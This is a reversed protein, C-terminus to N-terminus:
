LAKIRTAEADAIRTREVSAAAVLQKTLTNNEADLQAITTNLTVVTANLPDTAAKVAPACDTVPATPGKTVNSKATFEWKGGAWRCLWQNSGGDPDVDGTVWGTVAWVDPPLGVVRIVTAGLKADTRVNATPKITATYGPIYTSLTPMAADLVPAPQKALPRAIGTWGGTMFTALQAKTVWQGQYTGKPALPDDWWVRDQTDVRSVDIAHGGTFSPSFRRLTHGSPFNGMVGTAIGATGPKLATWFAAFGLPSVAIGIGLRTVADRVDSFNSGGTPLRSSAARLFEAYTLTDPVDKWSDNLFMVFSCWLCDEWRSDDKRGDPWTHAVERESVHTHRWLLSPLTM